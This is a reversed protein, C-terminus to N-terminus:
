EKIRPGPFNLWARDDADLDLRVESVAALVEAWGSRPHEESKRIELHDVNANGNPAGVSSLRLFSLGRFHNLIVTAGAIGDPYAGGILAIADTIQRDSMDRGDGDQYVLLIGCHTIDDRHLALFDRCNFTLIARGDRKGLAFVASDEAGRGLAEVSTLVDLGSRRLMQLLPKAAACEDILLRM